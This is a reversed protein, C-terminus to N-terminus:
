PKLPHDAGAPHRRDHHGEKFQLGSPSLHPMPQNLDSQNMMNLPDSYWPKLHPNMKGSLETLELLFMLVGWGPAPVLDMVTSTILLIGSTAGLSAPRATSTIGSPSATLAM